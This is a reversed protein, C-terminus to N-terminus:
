HHIGNNQMNYQNSKAVPRYNGPDSLNGKKFLATISADRWDKPVDGQSLSRTFLEAIPKSLEHRLEFLLKPHIGDVGPSKDVKLKALKELVDYETIDLNILKENENAKFKQISISSSSGSFM